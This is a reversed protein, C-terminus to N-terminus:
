YAFHIGAIAWRHPTQFGDEFYNQNLANSVRFYFRASYRDRFSHSYGGSIGLQRPGNFQFAYGYLPYLFDSGGQFDMALDIHRGLNRMATVTVADRFIRPTELPSINTGTYYQSVRDQANTYTYSATLLTKSSPRFEGSVEVGRAIGGREDYYGATRGYPDVYSPPFDFFGIERQLQTYFYTSSIKVRERFLYQDFGLDGSVYREPALRPDGYAYDVGDFLYGGFREYLSPLRFSNGVHARLKTSTSRFFYATSVDGTFASPPNPLTSNSYPSAGGLFTPQSLRASTFRGSLLFQLRGDFMRIEDQVFASNTSQRADTRYDARDALMPNQDTTVDLYHEREFEYGATLVHHSGAVYSIRAQLTDTRGSYKDSTNFSPQYFGPGGPGDRNDRVTDVLAYGIKYSLNRTVQHDLHFLSYTFYSYRGADPDNLSPLFNANPGAALAPIVGILSYSLPAPSVNEQLFGTNAFEKFGIRIGPTLAYNVSGQGSWNRAAGGDNVGETVNLNALGASYDLRSNLAGGAIRASGQFLGLGGGQLDLDGHVPGGGTDSIINITGGVSNTGYLSSGSGRLVEISASDVLMLDALYASADGQIATVDRFRYGDILVATDDVPLGRTDITTFSDPGGRTTVRLGPVMRLADSVAFLGRQQAQAVDVVDLAKSTADFPQPSDAGTVTIQSRVAAATLTLNLTKDEGSALTLKEARKLVLSSTRADLYYEGAALHEFLYKGEPDSTVGISSDSAVPHLTISVGPVVAGSTDILTGKVSAGEPFAFLVTRLCVLCLAFKLM